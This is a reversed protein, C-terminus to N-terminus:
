RGFYSFNEVILSQGKLALWFIGIGLLVAVVAGISKCLLVYRKQRQLWTILVASGVAWFGVMAGSMTGAIWGLTTKPLLPYLMAFWFLPGVIVAVLVVIPFSLRALKSEQRSIAM